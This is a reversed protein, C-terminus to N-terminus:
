RRGPLARGPTRPVPKYGDASDRRGVEETGASTAAGDLRPGDAKM